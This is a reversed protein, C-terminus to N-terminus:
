MLIRARAMMEMRLPRRLAQKPQSLIFSWFPSLSPLYLLDTNIGKSMSLRGESAREINVSALYCALGQSQSWRVAGTIVAYRINVRNNLLVHINILSPPRSIYSWVKRSDYHLTYTTRRGPVVRTSFLNGGGSRAPESTVSPKSGSVPHVHREWRSYLFPGGAATSDARDWLESGTSLWTPNFKGHMILGETVM